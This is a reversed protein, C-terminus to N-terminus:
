RILTHKPMNINKLVCEIDGEPIDYVTIQFKGNKLQKIAGM